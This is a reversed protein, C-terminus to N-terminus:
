QLTGLAENLSSDILNEILNRKEEIAQDLQRISAGIEQM